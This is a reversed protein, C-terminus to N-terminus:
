EFCMIENVKTKDGNIGRSLGHRQSLLECKMRKKLMEPDDSSIQTEQLCNISARRRMFNYRKNLSSLDLISHSQIVGSCGVQNRQIMNCNENFSIVSEVINAVTGCLHLHKMIWCVDCVIIVCM